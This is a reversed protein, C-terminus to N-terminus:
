GDGGLLNGEAEVPAPTTVFAIAGTLGGVMTTAFWLLGLAIADEKRMGAMGFLLLYASERIGLGNLTLPLSAFVNAIPVCLIFLSLPATLGLGAALIYQGLALTVQLIISLATAPILAAPHHLYPAVIGGARRVPRPMLHIMRAVLPAALLGVFAIAGVAITPTIVSSPIPAFNLFIASFAALWFLGILGVARDAVVSAIAEGMRGHRRGLYVSRAADGGLLGPVFLNTFMGVFTYALFERYHGHVKLLAALLQWRYACMAQGAVYLVVVAAFYAPRERSLIRIIPRADYRWLLVAVVAVGLGARIAFARYRHAPPAARETSASQNM